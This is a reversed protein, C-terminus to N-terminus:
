IMIRLKKIIQNVMQLFFSHTDINDPNPISKVYKLSGSLGKLLDTSGEVNLSSVISMFKNKNENTMQELQSKICFNSSFTMICIEISEDSSSIITKITHKVLDLREGQMSGSVDILLYLRKKSKVTSDYGGIISLLCKGDILQSLSVKIESEGGGQPPSSLYQLHQFLSMEINM